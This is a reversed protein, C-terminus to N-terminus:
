VPFAPWEERDLEWAALLGRLADLIQQPLQGNRYGTLSSSLSSKSIPRGMTRILYPLILDYSGERDLGLDILKHKVEKRLADIEQPSM